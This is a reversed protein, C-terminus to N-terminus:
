RARCMKSGSTFVSMGVRTAAHADNWALRVFLELSLNDFKRFNELGLRMRKPLMPEVLILEVVTPEEPADDLLDPTLERRGHPVLSLKDRVDEVIHLVPTEDTLPLRRAVLIPM